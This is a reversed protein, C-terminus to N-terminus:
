VSALFIKNMIQSIFVFSVGLASGLIAPLIQGNMVLLAIISAGTSLNIAGLGIYTAAASTYLLIRTEGQVKNEVKIIGVLIGIYFVLCGLLFFVSAVELGFISVLSNFLPSYSTILISSFVVILDIFAVFVFSLIAFTFCILLCRRDVYYFDFLIHKIEEKM